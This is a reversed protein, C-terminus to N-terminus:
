FDALCRQKQDKDKISYCQSKNGGVRALCSNKLDANKISYCRSKENRTEALCQNKLDSDKISYCQSSAGFSVIPALALATLVASLKKKMVIEM